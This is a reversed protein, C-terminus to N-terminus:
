TVQVRWAAWALALVVSGYLLAALAAAVRFGLPEGMLFGAALGAAIVASGAAVFPSVFRAAPVTQGAVVPMLQFLAGIMVPALLGLALWHTLALTLPAFRDPLGEAPGFALLLGAAAGLWPAPLLCGFITAPSPALDYNLINATAM